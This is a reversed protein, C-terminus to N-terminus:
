YRSPPEEKGFLYDWWKQPINATIEWDNSSRIKEEGGNVVRYIKTKDSAFLRLPSQAKIDTVLDIGYSYKKIEKITTELTYIITVSKAAKNTLNIPLPAIIIQTATPKAPPKNPGIRLFSWSAIGVALVVVIIAPLAYTFKSM